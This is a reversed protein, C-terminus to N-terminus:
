EHGISKLQLKNRRLVHQYVLLHGTYFDGAPAAVEADERAM